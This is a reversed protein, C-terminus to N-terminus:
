LNALSLGFIAAVAPLLFFLGYVSSVLLFKWITRGWGQRYFRKMALVVYLAIVGLTIVPLASRAFFQALMIAILLVLFVFSHVSLSFVLHDVFFYDKRRRWHFLALVLAYGPLLIFLVRPIWDMLVKNIAAPEDMLVELLRSLHRGSTPDTQKLLRDRDRELTARVQASLNPKETKTRTFFYSSVSVDANPFIPGGVSALDPAGGTAAPAPLTATLELQVVAIDTVSLSLFFLLSVFLYLRVPPVYRQTRGERFAAALEGPELFLARATRLIRSDFSALDKVLDYLLHLVSRRHTDAAQGCASCYNGIVPAACNRCPAIHGGQDLAAEVALEVAAAGGSELAVGASEM